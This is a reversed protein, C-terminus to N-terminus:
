EAKAKGVLTATNTNWGGGLVKYLTIRNHLVAVKIQILALVAELLKCQADMVALYDVAGNHYQLNIQASVARASQTQTRAIRIQEGWAAEGALADSVERFAEQIVKRYQAVAINQDINAIDLGAQNAGFDFIPMSIQPTLSWARSANSFLGKLDTSARGFSGTLEIRPFFAARAVGINANAAILRQEAAVVDPRNRLLASPLGVPVNALFRDPIPLVGYGPTIGVPWEPVSLLLILANIDQIRHQQYQTLTSRASEYIGEAQRLDVVSGIGNAHRLRVLDLLRARAQVIQHAINISAEDALLSIYTSAVSSILSIQVANRSSQTSLYLALGATKLSRIRGFLDLEYATIGVGYAAIDGSLEPREKNQRVTANFAPWQTAREIRYQAQTRQVNLAALRLDQNNELSIQILRQLQPDSFVLKWDPLTTSPLGDGNQTEGPYTVALPVDPREYQPALSCGVLLLTSTFLLVTIHFTRTIM